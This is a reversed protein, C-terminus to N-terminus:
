SLVVYRADVWGSPMAVHGLGRGSGRIWNFWTSYDVAEGRDGGAPVCGVLPDPADPRSLRQAVQNFFFNWQDCSLRSSSSHGASALADLVQRQFTYEAPLAPATPPPPASGGSPAPASAAMGPPPPAAPGPGAAAVAGPPPPASSAGGGSAAIAPTLGSFFTRYVLYGGGLAVGALILDSGKM